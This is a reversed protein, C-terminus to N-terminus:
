RGATQSDRATHASSRNKLKDKIRQKYTTSRNSDGSSHLGFFSEGLTFSDIDNEENKYYVEIAEKIIESKSKGKLLALVVLKSRMDASLRVTTMQEYM